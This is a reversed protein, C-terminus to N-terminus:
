VEVGLSPPVSVRWQLYAAEVERAERERTIQEYAEMRARADFKGNRVLFALAERAYNFVFPCFGAQQFQRVHAAEHALLWGPVTLQGRANREVVKRSVFIHRGITIAAVRLVRTLGDSWFGAHVFVPPLRLREDREYSRFFRELRARSEEALRMAM